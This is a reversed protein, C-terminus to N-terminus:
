QSESTLGVRSFLYPILNPSHHFICPTYLFSRYLVVSQNPFFSLSTMTNVYPKMNRM